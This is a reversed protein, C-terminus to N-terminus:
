SMIKLGPLDNKVQETLYKLWVRITNNLLCIRSRM